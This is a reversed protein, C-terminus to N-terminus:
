NGFAFRCVVTVVIVLRSTWFNWTFSIWLLRADDSQFFHMNETRITLPRLGGYRSIQSWRLLDVCSRTWVCIKYSVPATQRNADICFCKTCLINWEKRVNQAFFILFNHPMELQGSPWLFIMTVFSSCAPVAELCSSPLTAFTDVQLLTEGFADAEMTM